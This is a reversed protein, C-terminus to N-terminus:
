SDVSDVSTYRCASMRNFSRASFCAVAAPMVGRRKWAGSRSSANRSARHNHRWRTPCVNSIRGLIAVAPLPAAYRPVRCERTSFSIRGVATPRRRHSKMPCGCAPQRLATM